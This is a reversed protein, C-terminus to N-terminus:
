PRVASSAQLSVFPGSAAARGGVGLQLAAKGLRSLLQEVQAELRRGSRELVRSTQAQGLALDGADQRDCVLALARGLPGGLFPQRSSSSSSSRLSRLWASERRPSASASACAAPAPPVQG